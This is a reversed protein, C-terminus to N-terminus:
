FHYCRIFFAKTLLETESVGFTECLVNLLTTRYLEDANPMHLQEDLSTPLMRVTQSSRKISQDECRNATPLDTIEALFALDDEREALFVFATSPPSTVECDNTKLIKM